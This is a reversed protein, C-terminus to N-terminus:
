GQKPVLKSTWVPMIFLNTKNKVIIADRERCACCPDTLPFSFSVRALWGTYPAVMVNIVAFSEDSILKVMVLWCPSNLNVPRGFSLKLSKIM